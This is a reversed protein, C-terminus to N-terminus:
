GQSQFRSFEGERSIPEANGTQTNRNKGRQRHLFENFLRLTTIVKEGPERSRSQRHRCARLGLRASPLLIHELTVVGEDVPSFYCSQQKANWAPRTPNASRSLRSAPDQRQGVRKALIFYRDNWM